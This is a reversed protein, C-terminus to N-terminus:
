VWAQKELSLTLRQVNRWTGTWMIVTPSKTYIYGLLFTGLDVPVTFLVGGYWLNKRVAEGSSASFTDAKLKLWCQFNGGCALFVEPVWPVIDMPTRTYMCVVNRTPSIASLNRPWGKYLYCKTASLLLVEGECCFYRGRGPMILSRYRLPDETFNGGPTQINKLVVSKIPLWLSLLTQLYGSLLEHIIFSM